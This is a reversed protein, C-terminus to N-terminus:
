KSKASLVVNKNNIKKPRKQVSLSYSNTKIIEFINKSEFHIKENLVKSKRFPFEYLIITKIALLSVDLPSTAAQSQQAATTQPRPCGGARRARRGLTRPRRRGGRPCSCSGRCM